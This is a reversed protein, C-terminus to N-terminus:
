GEKITKNGDTSFVKEIANVLKEPVSEEAKLLDFKGDKYTLFAAPKMTVVAGNGSLLPLDSNKSFVSVKGYEGGGVLYTVTVKSFPVFFGGDSTETGRGTLVGVDVMEKLKEIVTGITENLDNGDKRM